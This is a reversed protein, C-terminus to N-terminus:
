RKRELCVLKFSKKASKPSLKDDLIRILRRRYLVDDSLWDQGFKCRKSGLTTEVTDPDFLLLWCILIFTLLYLKRYWRQWTKKKKDFHWETNVKPSYVTICQHFKGIRIWKSLVRTRTRFSNIISRFVQPTPRFSKRYSFTGIILM